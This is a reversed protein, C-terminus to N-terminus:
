RMLVSQWPGRGGTEDFCDARMVTADNSITGSCHGSFRAGKAMPGSKQIMEGEYTREFDHGHLVGKSTANYYVGTIRIAFSNGQQSVQFENGDADHWTGAINIAQQSGSQDTPTKGPLSSSSQNQAESAKSASTEGSRSGDSAPAASRFLSKDLSTFLGLGLLVIGLLGAVIRGFGGASGAVEAGFIKFGGGHLIAILLLVGGLVFAAITINQPM